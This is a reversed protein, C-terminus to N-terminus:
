EIALGEELPPVDPWASDDEPDRTPGEPQNINFGFVQFASHVWGNQHFAPQPKKFGMKWVIDIRRMTQYLQNANRKKWWFKPHYNTTIFLHKSVFQHGASGHVPIVLEYRDALENFFEPTMKDGNMEEIITSNQGDYDDFYLGSGKKPPVKYVTGLARSMSDAFNSKGRGSPGIILWVITKKNRPTTRTRKYEKFFRGHRACSAFHDAALQYLSIKNDLKIQIDLLDSRAGQRAPEGWVFPGELHTEDDKSCYKINDAQSGRRVDFHARELGPLQQLATFRHVGNLELYGQYHFNEKLQGDQDVGFTLELSYICYKCMPWQEPDLLRPQGHPFTLTGDPRPKGPFSIRFIYNRAGRMAAQPTARVRKVKPEM